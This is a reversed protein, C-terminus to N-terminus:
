TTRDLSLRLVNGRGGAGPVVCLFNGLPDRLRKPAIEEECRLCIGFSGDRLRDRAAEVERLTQM